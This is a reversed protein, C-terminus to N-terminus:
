AHKGGIPEPQTLVAGEAALYSYHQHGDHPTGMLLLPRAAPRPQIRELARRDFAANWAAAVHRTYSASDLRRTPTERLFRLLTHAPQGNTLGSDAAMRPWFLHAAEPQYRYTVLAVSLVAARQLVNRISVPGHCGRLFNLMEDKWAAMLAFRIQTDKLLALRDEGTFYFQQAFGTVLYPTVSGLRALHKAALDYEQLRADAQYLDTWSRALNRDYTEYLLGAARLDPVLIEEEQLWLPGGTTEGLAALTHQGNILYRPAGPAKGCKAFSIITGERFHGHEILHRLFRVQHPRLPRQQPYADQSLMDRAQKPSVLLLHTTISPRPPNQSNRSVKLAPSVTTAM